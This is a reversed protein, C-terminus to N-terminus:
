PAIADDDDEEQDPDDHDDDDPSDGVPSLAVTRAEVIRAGEAKLAELADSGDAGATVASGVAGLLKALALPNLGLRDRATAARTEARALEGAALLGEDSMPAHESIWARLVACMSEAWAWSTIEAAFAPRATWPAVSVLEAAMADALPQIIRKTRAGHKLNVEHGLAFPPWSYGRAPVPKATM